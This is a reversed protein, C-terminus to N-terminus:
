IINKKSLYNIIIEALDEPKQNLGNLTIEAADPKEYVSDIGTFDKILGSRAKRYLGKPDREECVEIPTDM